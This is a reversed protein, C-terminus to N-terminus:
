QTGRYTKSQSEEREKVTKVFRDFTIQADNVLMKQDHETSVPFYEYKALVTDEFEALNDEVLKRLVKDDPGFGFDLCGTEKNFTIKM